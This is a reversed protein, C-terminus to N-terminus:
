PIGLGTPGTIRTAIRIRPRAPELIPFPSRHSGGKKDKRLFFPM